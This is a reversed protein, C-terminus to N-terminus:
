LVGDKKMEELIENEYDDDIENMNDDEENDDNEMKNIIIKVEELWNHLEVWNTSVSRDYIDDPEVRSLLNSIQEVACKLDYIIVKINTM